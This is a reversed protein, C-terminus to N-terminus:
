PENPPSATANAGAAFTTVHAGSSTMTKISTAEGQQPTTEVTHALMIIDSGNQTIVLRSFRSYDKRASVVLPTIPEFICTATNKGDLVVSTPDVFETVGRLSKVQVIKKVRISARGQMCHAVYTSGIRMKVKEKAVIFVDAKFSAVQYLDANHAFVLVDGVKPQETGCAINVAVLDGCKATRCSIHHSEISKVESVIVENRGRHGPIIKVNQSVPFWGREVRGYVVTGIGGLSCTRAISMQPPGDLFRKGVKLTKLAQLLTKPENPENWSMAQSPEVLNDGNLASIPVFSISKKRWGSKKAMSRVANKIDEYKGRDGWDDLKNVCVIIKKGGMAMLIGMHKKLGGTKGDFASRLNLADHADVVLIAAHALALGRITNKTYDMHGPVDVFSITRNGIQIHSNMKQAITTGRRRENQLTDSHFAYVFSGKGYETAVQELQDFSRQKIAGLRYLLSGLLTSKGSDVHGALAVIINEKTGSMM